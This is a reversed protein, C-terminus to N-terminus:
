AGKSEITKSSFANEKVKMFKIASINALRQRCLFTYGFGSILVKLLCM